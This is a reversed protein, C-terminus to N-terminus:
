AVVQKQQQMERWKFGEEILAKFEANMSRFHQRAEKSVKEKTLEDIRLPYSSTQKEKM